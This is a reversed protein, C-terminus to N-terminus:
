GQLAEEEDALPDPNLQLEQPLLSEEEGYPPNQFGAEKLYNQRNVPLGKSHLAQVVQDDHTQLECICEDFPRSCDYCAEPDHEFRDKRADSPYNM